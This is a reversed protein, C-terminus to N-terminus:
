IYYVAILGRHKAHMVAHSKYHLLAIIYIKNDSELIM